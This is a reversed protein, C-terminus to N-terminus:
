IIGSSPILEKAGFYKFIAAKSCVKFGLYSTQGSIDEALDLNFEYPKIDKKLESFAEVVGERIADLDIGEFTYGQSKSIKFQSGSTFDQLVMSVSCHDIGRCSQRRIEFEAKQM